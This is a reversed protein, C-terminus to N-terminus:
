KKDKLLCCKRKKKKRLNFSDEKYIFEIIDYKSTDVLLKKNHIKDGDEAIGKEKNEISYRILSIVPSKANNESFDWMGFIDTGKETDRLRIWVSKSKDRMYQWVNARAVTSIRLIRLIRQILNSSCFMGCLYATIVVMAIFILINHINNSTIPPMAKFLKGFIYGLVFSKLVTYKYDSEDRSQIIFRLICIFIYGSCLWLAIESLDINEFLREIVNDMIIM